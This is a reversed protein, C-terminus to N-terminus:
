KMILQTAESIQWKEVNKDDFTLQHLNRVQFTVAKEELVTGRSRGSQGSFISGQHSVTLLM